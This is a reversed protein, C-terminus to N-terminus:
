LLFRELESWKPRNLTGCFATLSKAKCFAIVAMEDSLKEMESSRFEMKYLNM